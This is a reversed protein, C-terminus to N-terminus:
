SRCASGGTKKIHIDKAPGSTLIQLAVLRAHESKGQGALSVVVTGVQKEGSPGDIGFTKDLFEAKLMM